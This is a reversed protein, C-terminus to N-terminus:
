SDNGPIGGAQAQGTKSPQVHINEKLIKGLLLKWDGDYSISKLVAMSTIGHVMGWMAMLSQVRNAPAIEWSDMLELAANKYVEFPRYASERTIDTLDIEFGGQFMFFRFYEPHELFFDLYSLGMHILRDSSSRYEQLTTEMVRAFQKTVHQHMATLMAEKDPFHRYPAGHSVGCIAAVKRLSFNELGEEGILKIGAELLADRLNGHHYSKEAM